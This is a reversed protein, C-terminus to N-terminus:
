NNQQKLPEEKVIFATYWQLRESVDLLGFLFSSNMLMKLIGTLITGIAQYWIM